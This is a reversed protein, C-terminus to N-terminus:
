AGMGFKRDLRGSQRTVRAGARLLKIFASGVGFRARFCALTALSGDLKEAFSLSSERVARIHLDRCGRYLQGAPMSIREGAKWPNLATLRRARNEEPTEPPRNQRRLYLHGGVRLIPGRLALRGLVVHDPGFVDPFGGTAVLAERRAVGYIMNCVHLRWILRKYRVLASRQGLEIQDDMEEIVAGNEDILLSQPYALVAAPDAELAAVCRSILAPEWLDHDTAWMFYTGGALGLVRNFSASVGVHTEHRVYRVRDSRGAYARAIRETEDTSCNDSIVLEFNPYDQALLSDLSEALFREGNYTPMGITVLPAHQDM